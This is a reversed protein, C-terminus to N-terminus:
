DIWKPVCNIMLWILFLTVLMNQKLHPPLIPLFHDMVFYPFPLPFVRVNSLLVNLVTLAIIILTFVILVFTKTALAQHWAFSCLIMGNIIRHSSFSFYFASWFHHLLFVTYFLFPHALFFLHCAYACYHLM